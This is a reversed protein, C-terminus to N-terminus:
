SLDHARGAETCHHRQAFHRREERALASEGAVGSTEEIWGKAESHPPAIRLFHTETQGIDTERRQPVVVSVKAAIECYQITHTRRARGKEHGSWKRSGM